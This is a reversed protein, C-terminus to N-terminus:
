GEDGRKKAEYMSDVRILIWGGNHCWFIAMPLSLSLFLNMM